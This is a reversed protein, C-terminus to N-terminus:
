GAAGIALLALVVAWHFLVAPWISQTFTYIFTAAVGFFAVLGLFGGDLFLARDPAWLLAQLPHWLVYLGLAFLLWFLRHLAPMSEVERPILAARFVLEEGLAPFVLLGASLAFWGGPGSPAAGGSVFSRALGHVDVCAWTIVVFIGAIILSALWGGADPFAFLAARMRQLMTYLM